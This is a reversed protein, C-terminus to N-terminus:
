GYSSDYVAYWEYNNPPLHGDAHAFDDKYSFTRAITFYEPRRTFVEKCIETIKADRYYTEARM